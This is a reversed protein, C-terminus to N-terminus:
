GSETDFEFMIANTAPYYQVDLLTEFNFCGCFDM